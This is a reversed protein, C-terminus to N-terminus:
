KVLITEGEVELLIEGQFTFGRLVAQDPVPVLIEAELRAGSPNSVSLDLTTTAVQEVIEVGVNVETLQAAGVASGPSWVASRAQPVIVNAALAGGRHIVQAQTSPPFGITLATALLLLTRM